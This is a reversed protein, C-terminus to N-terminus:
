PAPRSLPIEYPSLFLYFFYVCLNGFCFLLVINRPNNRSQKGLRLVSQRCTIQGSQAAAASLKQTLYCVAIVINDYVARKRHLYTLVPLGLRHAFKGAPYSFYRQQTKPNRQRFQQVVSLNRKHYRVVRKYIKVFVVKHACGFQKFGNGLVSLYYVKGTM